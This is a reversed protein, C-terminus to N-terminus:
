KSAPLTFTMQASDPSHAAWAAALQERPLTKCVFAAMVRIRQKDDDVIPYAVCTAPMFHLLLDFGDASSAPDCLLAQLLLQVDRTQRAAVHEVLRQPAAVPPRLCVPCVSRRAAWRDFCVRHYQHGCALHTLAAYDAAVADGIVAPDAATDLAVRCIPCSM